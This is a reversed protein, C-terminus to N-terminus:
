GIHVRLFEDTLEGDGNLDILIMTFSLTTTVDRGIAREPKNITVQPQYLLQMFLSRLIKFDSYGRHFIKVM